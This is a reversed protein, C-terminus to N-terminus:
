LGERWVIENQNNGWVIKLIHVYTTILTSCTPLRVSIILTACFFRSGELISSTVVLLAIKAFMDPFLYKQFSGWGGKCVYCFDSFSRSEKM